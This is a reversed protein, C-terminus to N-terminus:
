HNYELIHGIVRMVLDHRRAFFVSRCWHWAALLTTLPIREFYFGELILRHYENRKDNEKLDEILRRVPYVRRRVRMLRHEIGELQAVYSSVPDSKMCTNGFTDYRYGHVDGYQKLEQLQNKLHSLDQENEKYSYLCKEAYRYRRM